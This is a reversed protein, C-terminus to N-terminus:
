AAQAETPILTFGMSQAQKRLHQEHRRQEVHCLPITKYDHGASMLDSRWRRSIPIAKATRSSIPM